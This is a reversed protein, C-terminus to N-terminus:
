LIFRNTTALETQPVAVEGVSALPLEPPAFAGDPEKAIWIAELIQSNIWSRELHTRLVVSEDSTQGLHEETPSKGDDSQRGCHEGTM